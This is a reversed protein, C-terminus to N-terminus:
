NGSPLLYGREATLGLLGGVAAGHLASKINKGLAAGLAGGALTGLAMRKGTHESTFLDSPKFKKKPEKHQTVVEEEFQQPNKKYEVLLSHLDKDHKSLDIIEDLQKRCVPFRRNEALDCDLSKLSKGKKYEAHGYFELGPEVYKLKLKLGPYKKSANEIFNVPPSWATEFTVVNKGKHKLTKVEEPEVDWKTGWTEIAKEINPEGIPVIGEFGKSKLKKLFDQKQKEDGNVELYNRNWNPM